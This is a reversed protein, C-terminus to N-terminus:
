RPPARRTRGPGRGPRRRWPPRRRAARGARRRPRCRGFRPRLPGSLRVSVRNDGTKISGDVWSEYGSRQATNEHTGDHDRSMVDHSRAPPRRAHRPRGTSTGTPGAFEPGEPTRSRVAHGFSGRDADPALGCMVLLVCALEVGLTATLSMPDSSANRAAISSVMLYKLSPSM